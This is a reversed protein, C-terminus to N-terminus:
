NPWKSHRGLVWGLMFSLLHHPNYLIVGLGWITNTTVVICCHFLSKAAAGKSYLLKKWLGPKHLLLWVCAPCACVSHLVQPQQLVWVSSLTNMFCCYWCIYAQSYVDEYQNTIAIVYTHIIHWKHDISLDRHDNNSYNKSVTEADFDLVDASHGGLSLDQVRCTLVWRM